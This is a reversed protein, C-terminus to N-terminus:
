PSEHHQTRAVGYRSSEIQYDAVETSEKHFIAWAGSAIAAIGALIGVILSLRGLLGM